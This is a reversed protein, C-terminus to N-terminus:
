TGPRCKSKHCGGFFKDGGEGGGKFKAWGKRMLPHTGHVTRAHSSPLPKQPPKKLASGGKPSSSRTKFYAHGGISALGTQRLSSMPGLPGPWGSRATGSGPTSHGGRRLSSGPRMVQICYMRATVFVGPPNRCSAARPASFLQRVLDSATKEADQATGQSLPISCVCLERRAAAPYTSSGSFSIAM